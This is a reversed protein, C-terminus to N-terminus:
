SLLPNELGVHTGSPLGSLLQRERPSQATLQTLMYSVSQSRNVILQDWLRVHSEGGLRVHTNTAAASPSADYWIVFSPM